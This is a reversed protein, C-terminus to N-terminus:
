IIDSRCMMSQTDDVICTITNSPPIRQTFLLLVSYVSDKLLAQLTIPIGTDLGPWLTRFLM